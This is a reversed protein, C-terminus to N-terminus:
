VHCGRCLVSKESFPMIVYAIHGTDVHNSHCSECTLFPRSESFFGKRVKRTELVIPPYYSKGALRLADNEKNFQAVRGALAPKLPVGSSHVCRINREAGSPKDPHCSRCAAELDPTPSLKLVIQLPAGPVPQVAHFATYRVKKRFWGFFGGELRTTDASAVGRVAPIGGISVTGGADAVFRRRGTSVVAGAAPSGDPFEVRVTVPGTQQAEAQPRKGAHSPFATTGASAAAFAVGGALIAAAFSRIKM